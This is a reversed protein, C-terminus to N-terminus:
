VHARGIEHGAGRSLAEIGLAGSGAFLDLCSHGMVDFQLWNFLTERMRSSTPRLGEADIVEIQRSRHEGGIIRIKHPTTM